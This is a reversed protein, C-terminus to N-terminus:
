FVLCRRWSQVSKELSGIESALQLTWEISALRLTTVKQRKARSKCWKHHVFYLNPDIGAAHLAKGWSGFHAEAASVLAMYERRATAYALSEKSHHMRSLVTMVKRKNWGPLRDGQKELTAIAKELSGFYHAAELKLAQPVNEVGHQELADSLANLLSARGRYLRKTHPKSAVGAAVLAKAWSGFQRLAASFLRHHNAMVCAAYLPLHKKHMSRITDIIKEEDWVIRERMKEPDFGAAHLAKNWDGFIWVGQEYLHGYKDQLHGAFVNGDSEYVKKLAAIWESKGNPYYGRRSRQIIRFEKATLEDPSLDFEGMYTERDTDHRSLHQSNIVRRHDGCIRCVVFAFGDDGDFSRKLPGTQSM